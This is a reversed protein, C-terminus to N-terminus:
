REAKHDFIKKVAPYLYAGTKLGLTGLVAALINIETFKWLIAALILVSFSRLLAHLTMKRRAYNEEAAEVCLETSRAMSLLLLVAAAAGIVVGLLTPVNRFWILCIAFLILNHLAIGVCMLLVQKKTADSM